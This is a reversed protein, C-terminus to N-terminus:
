LLGSNRQGLGDSLWSTVTANLMEQRSYMPRCTISITSKTPVSAHDFNPDTVYYYDVDSPLDNKFSTIAVPVNDLM